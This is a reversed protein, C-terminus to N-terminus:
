KEEEEEEKLFEKEALLTKREIRRRYDRCCCRCYRLCFLRWALCICWDSVDCGGMGVDSPCSVLRFVCVGMIAVLFISSLFSSVVILAQTNEDVATVNVFFLSM